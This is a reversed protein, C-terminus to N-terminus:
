NTARRNLVMLFGSEYWVTSCCRWVPNAFIILAAACRPHIGPYFHSLSIEIPCLYQRPSRDIAGDSLYKM